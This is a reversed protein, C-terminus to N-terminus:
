KIFIKQSYQVGAVSVKVLYIGSNANLSFDHNNSDIKASLVEQGTINFIKVTGAANAQNVLDISINKGVTNIKLNKSDRKVLGVNVQGDGALISKDPTSEYAFDKLTYQRSDDRADLRAWGYHTNSGIKFKLGVYKDTKGTFGGGGQEVTKGFTTLTGLYNYGNPYVLLGKWEQSAAGIEVGKEIPTAFPNAPNNVYQNDGAPDLNGVGHQLGSLIRMTYDTNGDDDLDIQYSAWATADHWDAADFNGHVVMDPDVDTYVIQAQVADAAILGVALASYSKVNKLLDKKM